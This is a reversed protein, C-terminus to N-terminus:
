LRTRAPEQVSQATPKNPAVGPSLTAVQVAGHRAPRYPATPPREESFQVPGQEAPYAHEGPDSVGM